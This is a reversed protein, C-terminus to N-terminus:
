TGKPRLESVMLIKLIVYKVREFFRSVMCKNEEEKPLLLNQNPKKNFSTEFEFIGRYDNEQDEYISLTKGLM